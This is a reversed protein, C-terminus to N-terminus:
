ENDDLDDRNPAYARVEREFRSQGVLLPSFSIPRGGNKSKVYTSGTNPGRKMWAIENWAIARDGRFWRNQRIGNQDVTVTRPKALLIAVLVSLPILVAFWGDRRRISVALVLITFAVLAVQVSVILIRMGPAPFFEVARANERPQHKKASRRLWAFLFMFLYLPSLALLLILLQRLVNM